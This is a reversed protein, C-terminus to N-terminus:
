VASSKVGNAGGSTASTGGAPTQLQTFVPQGKKEYFILTISLILLLAAIASGISIGIIAGTSLGASSPLYFATPPSTPPSPPSFPCVTQDEDPGILNCFHDECSTEYDHFGVEIYAPVQSHDCLDHYAVVQKWAGNQMANQCCTGPNALRRKSRRDNRAVVTTRYSAPQELVDALRRGHDHAPAAGLTHVPEIDTALDMSVLYHTDREFETPVHQTFIGLNTIGTTDIKGHFDKTADAPFTIDYCAGAVTPVMATPAFCSATAPPCSATIATCAGAMLTDANDKLADLTAKLNDALKYVAIKMTADAYACNAQEPTSSGPVCPQPTQALPENDTTEDMSLFYHKTQEFETPVHETFFAM